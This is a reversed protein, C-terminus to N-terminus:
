GAKKKTRRQRGLGAKALKAREPLRAAPAPPEEFDLRLTEPAALAVRPPKRYTRDVQRTPPADLQAGSLLEEVSLLQVRPHRGWPSSYYGASAAETRM